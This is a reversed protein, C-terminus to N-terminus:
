FAKQIKKFSKLGKRAKQHSRTAKQLRQHRKPRKSAKQPPGEFSKAAKQLRKTARRAEQPACNVILSQAAAGLASDTGEM